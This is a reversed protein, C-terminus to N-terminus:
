AGFRMLVMCTFIALFGLLELGVLGKVRDTAMTLEASPSGDDNIPAAAMRHLAPELVIFGWAYVGIALLLSALWTWGYVTGLMADVSQIPGLVTGRVIGLLVLIPVVVKFIPTARAGIQASVLRQTVIPLRSIAPIVIVALALSTGFWLIGLLVHGWQVAVTLLNMGAVIPSTTTADM